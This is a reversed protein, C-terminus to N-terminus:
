YTWYDVMANGPFISINKLNQNVRAVRGWSLLELAVAGM